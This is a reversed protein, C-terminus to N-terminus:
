RGGAPATPPSDALQDIQALADQVQNILRTITHQQNDAVTHVQGIAARVSAIADTMTAVAQSVDTATATLTGLTATIRDASHATDDALKRVEDAVVAFGLGTEGARAAEITANLALMRTQSAIQAIAAVMDTTAPLSVSLAEAAHDAQAAHDAMQETALQATAAGANIDHVSARVEDVERVADGLQYAVGGIIQESEARVRRLTEERAEEDAAMQRQTELDARRREEALAEEQAELAALMGNVATGLARLDPHPSDPVRRRVDRSEMIKEAARRLPRVHERVSGRVVRGILVKLLVLVLVVVIVISTLARVAERRVPREQLMDFTVPVGEVSTVTAQVAAHDGVPATNVRLTGLLSSLDAHGLSGARPPGRLGVPDGTSMAIRELGAADLTRLFVLSGAPSGTGERRYSPLSCYMTPTATATTVGCSAAGVVAGADIMTRLVAPDRLTAPLAGYGRAVLSGGVRPRGDRDTGVVASLGYVDRLQAAPLDAVFQQQDGAALDRYVATRVSTSIGLDVIRQTQGSLAVRLEEAESVLLGREVRDFARITIVWTPTMLVVLAVALMALIRLRGPARLVAPLRRSRRTAPTGPPLEM